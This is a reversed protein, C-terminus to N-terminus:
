NGRALHLFLDKNLEELGAHLHNVSIWPVWTRQAVIGRDGPGMRWREQQWGPALMDYTRGPLALMAKHGHLLVRAVELYHPDPFKVFM